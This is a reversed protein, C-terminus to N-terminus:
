KFKATKFMFLASFLLFMASLIWSISFAWFGLMVGIFFMMSGYLFNKFTFALVGLAIWFFLFVGFLIINGQNTLDITTLDTEIVPPVYYCGINYASLNGTYPDGCGIDEVALCLSLNYPQCEGFSTCTYNQICIRFSNTYSYDSKLGASDFAYLGFTYNGVAKSATFNYTTTNVIYDGKNEFTVNDFLTLNYQITFGNPDNAPTWNVFISTNQKINEPVPYIFPTTPNIFDLDIIDTRPDACLLSSDSSKYGCAQYYFITPNELQHLHLDATVDINSSWTNGNNNSTQQNLPNSKNLTGWIVPSAAGGKFIFYSTPTIAIGNILCGGPSAAFPVVHHKSYGNAGHTHNFAANGPITAIEVCAAAITPNGNTYSSNCYFIRFETTGTGNVMFELFGYNACTVNNLGVKYLDNTTALTALATHINNESDDPNVNYTAPLIDNDDLQCLVASSTNSCTHSLNQQTSLSTGNIHRWALMSGNTRTYINFTGNLASFNYTINVRKNIFNLSTLNSPAISYFTMGIDQEEAGLTSFSGYEAALWGSSRSTNSFRIEDIYAPAGNEGWRNTNELNSGIRLHDNQVACAALWENQYTLNQYITHACTTNFYAVAYFSMISLDRIKMDPNHATGYADGWVEGPDMNFYISKQKATAADGYAALVGATTGNTKTFGWGSITPFTATTAPFGTPTEKLFYTTGNGFFFCGGYKCSSNLAYGAGGSPTVNNLEKVDLGNVGHFVSVFSNSFVGKKNEANGALPAGYYVSVNVTTNATYSPIRVWIVSAAYNCAEIEYDMQGGSSNIVRIDDCDNQMKGAAILTATNIIIPAPFDTLTEPSTSNLTATKMYLFSSNWWAYAPWSQTGITIINDIATNPPLTGRISINWCTGISASKFAAAATSLSLPDWRVASRTYNDTRVIYYEETSIISGNGATNNTIRIGYTNIQETYTYPVAWYLNNKFTSDKIAGPKYFDVNFAADATSMTSDKCIEYITECNFCYDTNKILKLNVALVSPLFVSLVILLALGHAMFNPKKSTTKVM